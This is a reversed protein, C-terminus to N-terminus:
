HGGLRSSGLFSSSYSSRFRTQGRAELRGLLSTRTRSSTKSLSVLLKRGMALKRRRMQFILVGFVQKKTQRFAPEIQSKPFIWDSVRVKRYLGV